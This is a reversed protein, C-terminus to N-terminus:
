REIAKGGPGRMADIHRPLHEAPHM